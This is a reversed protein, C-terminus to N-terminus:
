PQELVDESKIEVLRQGSLVEYSLRDVDTNVEDLELDIVLVGLGDGEGVGEVLVALREGESVEQLSMVGDTPQVDDGVRLEGADM